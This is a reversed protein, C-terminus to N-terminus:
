GLVEAANKAITEELARAESNLRTLEENLESFRTAFDVEDKAGEAVGVYRGPNLSYGQAIIEARTAVKCLGKVDRYEARKSKGFLEETKAGGGDHDEIALGRYLRVINAVFEVQEATMERHARDVQRFQARADIFLVTDERPTKKKSRDFFWLTVPLTVTYFLNSSLSLMVDVAGAEVLQKRIELESGRADSASNAMVFGARGKASLSSYFLSVWLYNANNVTPVGLPFRKKQAACRELDAENQNFPPNAMVYDFKGPASHPDDYYSNGETLQGALGHIALNMRALRLVSAKKEVGYFSVDQLRTGHAGVFKASQVFMGGSGCAPDYFTGQKPDLVSVILKVVSEPTFFEGGKQLNKRALQGLFYEYVRGFLDVDSTPIDAFLRVLQDLVRHEIKAFGRPLVGRLSENEGEIADMARDLLVGLTRVTGDDDRLGAEPVSSLAAYRAEKPLYPVYKALYHEKKPGGRKLTKSLEETVAEFRSDAFRLFLLALVPGSYENPDLATNAFLVDAAKWLRSEFEPDLVM